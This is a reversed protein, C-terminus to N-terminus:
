LELESKEVVNYLMRLILRIYDDMANIRILSILLKLFQPKYCSTYFYLITTERSIIQFVDCFSLVATLTLLMHEEKWNNNMRFV